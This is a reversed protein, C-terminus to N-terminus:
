RCSSRVSCTPCCTSSSSGPTPPGMAHAALVFDRERLSLVEARILRALGPWGFVLGLVLAFGTANRAWPVSSAVVLLVVLPPVTLMLDCLRMLVSDTRGRRFGAATGVLLGLFTGIGVALLCVYLSRQIGYM